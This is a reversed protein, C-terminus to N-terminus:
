KTRNKVLYVISIILAVLALAILLIRFVGGFVSSSVLIMTPGDAGGIIGVSASDSPVGIVNGIVLLVAPLLLYRALVLLSVVLLVIASIKGKNM